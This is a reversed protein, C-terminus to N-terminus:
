WVIHDEIDMSKKGPVTAVCKKLLAGRQATSLTIEEKGSRNFADAVASTDVVQNWARVFIVHDRPDWTGFKGIAAIQLFACLKHPSDFVCIIHSIM